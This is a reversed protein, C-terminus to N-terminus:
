SEGSHYANLGARTSEFELKVEVVFPALTTIVFTKASYSVGCEGSQNQSILNTKQPNLNGNNTNQPFWTKQAGDCVTFNM